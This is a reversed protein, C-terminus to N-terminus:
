HLTEGNINAAASGTYAARELTAEANLSIHIQTLATIVHSKGTGGSGMVVMMLP